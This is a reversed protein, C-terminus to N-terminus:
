FDDQDWEMAQNPVYEGMEEEYKRAMYGGEDYGQSEKIQKAMKLAKQEQAMKKDENVPRKKGAKEKGEKEDGEKKNDVRPGKMTAMKSTDKVNGKQKKQTEGGIGLMEPGGMLYPNEEFFYFGGKNSVKRALSGKGAKYVEYVEPM